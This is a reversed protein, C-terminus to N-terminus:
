MKHSKGEGQKKDCRRKNRDDTLQKAAAVSLPTCATSFHEMCQEYKFQLMCNKNGDCVCICM